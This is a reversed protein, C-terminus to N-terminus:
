AVALSVSPSRVEYGAPKVGIRSDGRVHSHVFFRGSVKGFLPREPSYDKFHGRVIHMMKQFGLGSVGAAKRVVEQMPKIVVTRYKSPSLGGHKRRFKKIVAEPKTQEIIQVNKCLMLSQALLVVISVVEVLRTDQETFITPVKFMLPESQLDISWNHTVVAGNGHEEIFLLEWNPGDAGAWVACSVGNPHQWEFWTLEFSPRLTGLHAYGLYSADSQFRQCWVSGGWDAVNQINIPVTESLAELTEKKDQLHPLYKLVDPHVHYKGTRVRDILRMAEKREHTEM